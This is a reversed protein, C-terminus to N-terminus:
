LTVRAALGESLEGSKELADVFDIFAARVDAPYDNQTKRSRRLAVYQPVSEWFAARIAKQNAYATTPNSSDGYSISASYTKM